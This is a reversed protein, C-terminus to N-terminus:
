AAKKAKARVKAWRKRQAAAIRARAAASLVRRPSHNRSAGNSVGQLAAIATNLRDREEILAKVIASLEEM